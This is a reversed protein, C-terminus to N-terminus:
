LWIPRLLGHLREGHEQDAMHTDQQTPCIKSCTCVRGAWPSQLLTRARWSPKQIGPTGTGTERASSHPACSQAGRPPPPPPSLGTPSSMNRGPLRGPGVKPILLMCRSNRICHHSASPAGLLHSDFNGRLDPPTEEPPGVFTQSQQRGSPQQARDLPNLANNRM